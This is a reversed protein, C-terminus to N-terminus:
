FILGYLMHASTLALFAAFSRRLWIPPLSHALRAGLPATLMATPATLVLGLLSVYGLSLPPLGTVGIGALMFGITGPIAIIVGLASSTAVARRIPYDCLVLSPVTLTGGGIGMMASFAGIFAALVAQVANSPLSDRLRVGEKVFTM